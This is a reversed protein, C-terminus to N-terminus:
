SHLELACFRSLMHACVVVRQDINAAGVFACVAFFASAAGDRQRDVITFRHRFLTRLTIAAEEEAAAAASSGGVDAYRFAIVHAWPNAMLVRLAAQGTGLGTSCVTRVRPGRALASLLGDHELDKGAVSGVWGARRLAAALTAESGAPVNANADGLRLAATLQGRLLEDGASEPSGSLSSHGDSAGGEFGQRTGGSSEASALRSWLRERRRRRLEVREEALHLQMEARALADRLRAPQLTWSSEDEEERADSDEVRGDSEALSADPGVSSQIPRSNPIEDNFHRPATATTVTHASSVLLDTGAGHREAAVIAADSASPGLLLQLAAHATRLAELEERLRLVELRLSESEGDGGGGVVVPGAEGRALVKGGETQGDDDKPPPHAPASICQGGDVAAQPEGATERAIALRLREAWTAAAAPSEAEFFWGDGVRDAVHFAVSSASSAVPHEVVAGWLPISVTARLAAGSDHEDAVMRYLRGHSLIWHGRLLPPTQSLANYGRLPGAFALPGAYHNQDATTGHLLCRRSNPEARPESFLADDVPAEPHLWSATGTAHNYYYANGNPHM